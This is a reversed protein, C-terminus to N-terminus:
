IELILLIKPLSIIKIDITSEDKFFQKTLAEFASSYSSSIFNSGSCSFLLFSMFIVILNHKNILSNM